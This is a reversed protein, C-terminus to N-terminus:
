ALIDVDVGADQSLSSFFFCVKLVSLSATVIESTVTYCVLWLLSLVLDEFRITIELSQVGLRTGRM